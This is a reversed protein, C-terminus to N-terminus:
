IHILSLSVAALVAVYLASVAITAVMSRATVAEKDIRYMVLALLGIGSAIKALPLPETKLARFADAAMVVLLFVATFAFRHNLQNPYHMGHWFFNLSNVSLSLAMVTLLIGNAVKVKVSISRTLFYAPILLLVLTGAYINPLGERVAPASLFMQRGLLDIPSYMFDVKDPWADGYASTHQLKM